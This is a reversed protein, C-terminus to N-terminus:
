PEPNWGALVPCANAVTVTHVGGIVLMQGAQLAYTTTTGAADTFVANGGAAGGNFIVVAPLIGAAQAPADAGHFSVATSAAFAKWLTPAHLDSRISQAM